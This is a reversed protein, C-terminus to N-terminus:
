KILTYNDEDAIIVGLIPNKKDGQEVIDQMSPRSVPVDEIKRLTITDGLGAYPADSVDVKIQVEHTSSKNLNDDIM